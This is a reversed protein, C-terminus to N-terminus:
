QPSLRAEVSAWAAAQPFTVRPYRAKIMWRLTEMESVGNQKRLAVLASGARSYTDESPQEGYLRLAADLREKIEARGHRGEFAIAMKDLASLPVELPSTDFPTPSARPRLPPVQGGSQRVTQRPHYAGWILLGAFLWGAMALVVFALLFRKADRTLPKM